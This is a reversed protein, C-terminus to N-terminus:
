GLLHFVQIRFVILVQYFLNLHCLYIWHYAMSMPEFFITLIIMSDLAIYLNLAIGILIRIDTKLSSSCITRFNTHFWLLGQIALAVNLFFFFAPPVMSGSKLSTLMALCMAITILVIHYQCVFLCLDVSSVLSGLFLHMSIHDILKCSLLWSYVTSFLCERWCLSNSPLLVSMSFFSFQVM